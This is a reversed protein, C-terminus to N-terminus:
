PVGRPAAQQVGPRGERQREQIARLTGLAWFMGALLLGLAVGAALGGIAHGLVGRYSVSLALPVVALVFGVAVGAAFLVFGAAGTWGAVRNAPRQM